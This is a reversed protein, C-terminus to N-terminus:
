ENEVKKILKLIYFLASTVIYIVGVYSLVSVIFAILVAEWTSGAFFTGVSIGIALAIFMLTLIFIRGGIKNTGM